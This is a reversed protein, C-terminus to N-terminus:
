RLVFRLPIKVSVRIPNGNHDRGPAFRWRRVADIAAADLPPISEVIKIDPEVRGVPDVVIQLIVQGEIEAQRANEPYEPIGGSLLMPARAIPDTSNGNLSTQAGAGFSADARSHNVSGSFSRRTTAASGMAPTAPPIALSAPIRSIATHSTEADLRRHHRRGSRFRHTVAAMDSHNATAAQSKRSTERALRAYDQRAGSIVTVYVYDIGTTRIRAPRSVIWLGAIALSHLIISGIAAVVTRRCCGDAAWRSPTTPVGDLRQGRVPTHRGLAYEDFPEMQRPLEGARDASQDIRRSARNTADMM